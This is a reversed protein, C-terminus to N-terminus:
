DKICRVSFGEYMLGVSMGGYNSGSSLLFSEANEQETATSSWWNGYNGISLFPTINNIVDATRYGGPLATFGSSNSSVITPIPVDWHISGSEKLKGGAFSAGGCYDILTTWEVTSPVHWGSPCVGRSDTVAYWTYLRGYDSVNSEKGAYAWQYKPDSEGAIVLTAPTTTGVLDGNKYKTSKLNEAMWVQTGITVTKYNNNELDKLSGYTISQNFMINGNGDNNEVKVTKKCSFPIILVLSMTFLASIRYLLNKKM